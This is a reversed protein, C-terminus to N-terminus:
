QVNINNLINHLADVEMATGSAGHEKLVEDAKNSIFNNKQVSRVTTNMQTDRQQMIEQHSVKRSHFNGKSPATSLNNTSLYPQLQKLLVLALAVKDDKQLEDFPM